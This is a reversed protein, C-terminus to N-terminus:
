IRVLEVSTDDYHSSSHYDRPPSSIDSNNCSNIQTNIESKQNVIKDCKETKEVNECLNILKHSGTSTKLTRKLMVNNARKVIDANSITKTSNHTLEFPDKSHVFSTPNLGDSKVNQKAHTLQIVKAMTTDEDIEPLLEVESGSLSLRNLLAKDKIMIEQSLKKAERFKKRAIQNLAFDDQYVTRDSQLEQIIPVADTAKKKDAVDHELHYMADTALQKKESHDATVIQENEKPDWQQVKRRAGELILYQFNKPDTQMIITGACLHCPMTFQYIPTSHYMGVKKKQANYRVGMGIPNKCTLCWCNFPMEFRITIIGQDAKKGRQRLAHTGHYANLNKHRNPDFDPPYYKNTGKREGM